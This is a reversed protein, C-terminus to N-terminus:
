WLRGQEIKSKQKADNTRQSSGGVTRPVESHIPQVTSTRPAESLVRKVPPPEIKANLTARTMASEGLEARYRKMGAIFDLASITLGAFDNM